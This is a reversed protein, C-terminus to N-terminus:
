FTLSFTAGGNQNNHVNVFGGHAIMIQRTLALGVGSGERKTTFFPVFVKDIIDVPVGSGNDIIDIVARGRKNLKANVTVNAQEASAVAHEANKLLNIIVQEIMNIDVQIDLNPPLINISLKIDQKSWNQTAVLQVQTLLKHIPILTKNPEPLRTLQRYSGVFNMLGDSRRAVTKVADSVDTLEELTEVSYNNSEKVDDILDSATKALSAIPTISNMIEHTLVKVLAQWAQLQAVNLESQIDQMSVLMEHQQNITLQTSSIRLRHEIGDIPIDILLNDNINLKTMENAFNASFQSLDSLKTVHNSGFLRRASNNWLTIQQDQHISMLPVPVQEILAKLHKLEEERSESTVQLRELIDGFAQGLEDFGTGVETLDFQQSYDAYRAADLFRTLERNTKNIFRVLESFQFVILLVVIFTSAHYGPASIFFSLLLLGLLILVTRIIILLSFRKFGM